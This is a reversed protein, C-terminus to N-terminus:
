IRKGAVSARKKAEIEAAKAAINWEMLLLLRPLFYDRLGEAEAKRKAQAAEREERVKTM